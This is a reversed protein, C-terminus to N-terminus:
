YFITHYIFGSTLKDGKLSSVRQPWKSGSECDNFPNRPEDNCQILHGSLISVAKIFGGLQFRGCADFGVPLESQGDFLDPCDLGPGIDPLEQGFLGFRQSFFLAHDVATEGDYMM